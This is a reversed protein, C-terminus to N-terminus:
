AISPGRRLKEIYYIKWQERASKFEIKALRMNLRIEELKEASAHAYHKKIALYDKKLTEFREQAQHVRSKMTDVQTQLSASWGSSWRLQLRKEEMALRARLIQENPTRYLSKAAGLFSLSRITWKTPDWHYWRVGNRYDKAFVHHYNHYGEGFTLLAMIFSDRATQEDTYTQRGVTHCLSNIFFTTHHLIALRLLGAVAFGGLASGFAWGILTPLGFTATLAIPLYYKHQFLIMEDKEFDRGFPKPDVNRVDHVLMWGFHAYWFGKSISYPDDHTDVHRHHIRHDRCWIYISNQLAAAGFFALTWRVWAHAEYARHAFLRHYGATISLGTLCYLAFATIWISWMWGDVMIHYTVLPVAAIPVLILALVGPWNLKKMSDIIAGSV